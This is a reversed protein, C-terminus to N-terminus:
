HLFFSPIMLLVKYNEWLCDKPLAPRDKNLEPGLKNGNIISTWSTYVSPWVRCTIWGVIDTQIIPKTNEAHITPGFEKSHNTIENLLRQLTQSNSSVLVINLALLLMHHGKGNM